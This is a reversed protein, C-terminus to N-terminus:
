RREIARLLILGGLVILLVPWMSGWQIRPMAIGLTRDLLYYVGVAVIILGFVLTGIGSRRERRDQDRPPIWPPERWQNARPAGPPSLGPSPAGPSAPEVPPPVGPPRDGPSGPDVPAPPIPQNPDSMPNHNRPCAGRRAPRALIMTAEVVPARIAM